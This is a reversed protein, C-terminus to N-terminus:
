DNRLEKIESLIMHAALASPPCDCDDYGEQAVKAADDIAANYLAKLANTPNYKPIRVASFEMMLGLEDFDIKGDKRPIETM